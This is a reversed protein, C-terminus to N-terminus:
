SSPCPMLEPVNMRREQVIQFHRYLQAYHKTKPNSAGGPNSGPISTKCIESPERDREFRAIRDPDRNLTDALAWPWKATAPTADAICRM